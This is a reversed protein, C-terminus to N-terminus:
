GRRMKRLKLWLEKRRKVVSKPIEKHRWQGLRRHELLIRAQPKKEKLFPLLRKCAEEAEDGCVRWYYQTKRNPIDFDRSSFSGGYVRQLWKVTSEYTIGCQIFVAQTNSNISFCGEGDLLGAAYADDKVLTSLPNRNM